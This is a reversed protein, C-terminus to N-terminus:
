CTLIVGCLQWFLVSMLPELLMSRWLRVCYCVLGCHRGRLFRQFHRGILALDHACLHERRLGVVRMTADFPLDVDDQSVSGVIQDGVPCRVPFTLSAFEAATWKEPGTHARKPGYSTWVYQCCGCAALAIVIEPLAPYFVAVLAPRITTPVFLARVARLHIASGSSSIPPSSTTPFLMPSKAIAESPPVHVTTEPKDVNHITQRRPTRPEQKTPDM